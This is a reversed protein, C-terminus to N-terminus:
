VGVIRTTEGRSRYDAAIIEAQERSAYQGVLNWRGNRLVELYYM